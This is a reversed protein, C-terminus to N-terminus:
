YIFGWELLHQVFDVILLFSSIIGIIIPRMSILHVIDPKIVRVTKIISISENFFKIISLSKRDVSLPYHSYWKKLIMLKELIKVVFLYKM